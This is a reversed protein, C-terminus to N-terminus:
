IEKIGKFIFEIIDTNSKELETGLNQRIYPVELGKLAYLIIISITDVDMKKFEKKEVGEKLINKILGLEIIDIRRRSREVAYIDRFFDARLTGNRTVSNKVTYLHTIILEKLKLYPSLNKQSVNTLKEIIIDIENDIVAKYVEDKSKFYTYLTRRGKHSAEAIDNMTLNKKGYSAFLERAADILQKKTKSIRETM